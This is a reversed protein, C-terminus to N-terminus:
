TKVPALVPHTDSEVETVNLRVDERSGLDAARGLVWAIGVGAVLWALLILSVTVLM